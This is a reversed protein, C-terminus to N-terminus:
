YPREPGLVGKVDNACATALSETAVPVFGAVSLHCLVVFGTVNSIPPTFFVYATPAPINNLQLVPSLSNAILGFAEISASM